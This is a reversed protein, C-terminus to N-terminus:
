GSHTICNYGCDCYARSEYAGYIYRVTFKTNFCNPCAFETYGEKENRYELTEGPTGKYHLKFVKGDINIELSNFDIEYQEM